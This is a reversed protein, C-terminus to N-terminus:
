SRVPHERFPLGKKRREEQWLIRGVTRYSLKALGTCAQVHAECRAIQGSPMTRVSILQWWCHSGIRVMSDCSWDSRADGRARFEAIEIAEAMTVPPSWTTDCPAPDRWGSGIGDRIPGCTPVADADPWRFFWEPYSWFVGDEVHVHLHLPAPRSALDPAWALMTEASVNGYPAASGVGQHFHPACGGAVIALVLAVATRM